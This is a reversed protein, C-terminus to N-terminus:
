MNRVDIYGDDSSSVTDIRCQYKEIQIPPQRRQLGSLWM